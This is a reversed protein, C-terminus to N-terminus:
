KQFPKGLKHIIRSKENENTKIKDKLIQLEFAAKLILIKNIISYLDFLLKLM